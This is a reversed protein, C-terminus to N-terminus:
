LHKTLQYTQFNSSHAIYKTIFRSFFLRGTYNFHMGDRRYNSNVPETNADVYCLLKDKACRQKLRSNVYDGKDNLLSCGHIIRHPIALILIKSDNTCSRIKIKLGEESESWMILCDDLYRKWNQMFSMSYDKFHVAVEKYLRTEWYGM